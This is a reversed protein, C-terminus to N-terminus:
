SMSYKATAIYALRHQFHLSPFGLLAAFCFGRPFDVGARHMSKEWQAVDAVHRFVPTAPFFAHPMGALECTQM